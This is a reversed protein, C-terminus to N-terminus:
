TCSCPVSADRERERERHTHTHRDTQSDKQKGHILRVEEELRSLQLRDKQTDNGVIVTFDRVEGRRFIQAPSGLDGFSAEEAYCKLINDDNIQVACFNSNVETITGKVSSGLAPPPIQEKIFDAIAADFEDYGWGLWMKALADTKAREEPDYSYKVFGVANLREEVSMDEWTKEAGAADVQAGQVEEEGADPSSSAVVVDAAVRARGVGVGAGSGRRERRPVAQRARSYVAVGAEERERRRRMKRNTGGSGRAAARSGGRVSQRQRIRM